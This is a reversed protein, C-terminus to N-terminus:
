IEKGEKGHAKPVCNCGRALVMVMRPNEPNTRYDSQFHPFKYLYRSFDSIKIM